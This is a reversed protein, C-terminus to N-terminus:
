GYTNGWSINTWIHEGMFHEGYTNGGHFTRGYTNGWSINVWIHEGMFHEGM